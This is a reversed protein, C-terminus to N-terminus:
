LPPGLLRIRARRRSPARRHRHARRLRGVGRARRTGPAAGRRLDAIGCRAPR